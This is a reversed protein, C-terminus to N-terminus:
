PREKGTARRVLERWLAAAADVRRQHEQPTMDPVDAYRKGPKRATVIAPKKGGTPLHQEPEHRNDNCPKAKRVVAAAPEPKKAVAAKRKMLPRKYRYATTVIRTM